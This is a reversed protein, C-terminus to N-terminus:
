LDMRKCAELGFDWVAESPQIWPTPMAPEEQLSWPFIRGRVKEVKWLGGVNGSERSRGGDECGEIAHSQGRSGDECHKESEAGGAGGWLSGVVVNPVWIIWSVRGM